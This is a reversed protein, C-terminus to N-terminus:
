LNSSEKRVKEHEIMLYFLNVSALIILKSNSAIKSIERVEDAMPNYYIMSSFTGSVNRLAAVEPKWHLYYKSFCM